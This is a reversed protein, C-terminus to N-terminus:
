GVEPQQVFRQNRVKAWLKSGADKAYGSAGTVADGVRGVSAKWIAGTLRATCESVIKGLHGAAEATAARRLASRRRTVTAGYNATRDDPHGYDRRDDHTATPM